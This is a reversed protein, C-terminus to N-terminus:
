SESEGEEEKKEGIVEPEAAGAAAEEEEERLEVVHVVTINPDTLSEVGEPLSLQGATLADGIEMTSVDAVISEPIHMVPCRIDLEHLTQELIGGMRVGPAEGKLEIPVTTEVAEGARVRNFDLHLVERGFADYQVERVFVSESVDGRLEVVRSGHRLLADVGESPVALSIVEKGHGYLVAPIQGARRLRRNRRKGTATRVKAQIVENESM